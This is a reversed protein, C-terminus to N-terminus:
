WEDSGGGDDDGDCDDCISDIAAIEAKADRACSGCGDWGFAGVCPMTDRRLPVARAWSVTPCSRSRSRLRGMDNARVAGVDLAVSTGMMWSCVPMVIWLGSVHVLQVDRWSSKAHAKTLTVVWASPSCRRRVMWLMMVSPVAQPASHVCSLAGARAAPAKARLLGWWGWTVMIECM